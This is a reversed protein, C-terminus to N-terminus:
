RVLKAEGTTWDFRVTKSGAGFTWSAGKDELTVATPPAPKESWSFAVANRWAAGRHRMRITLFASRNYRRDILPLEGTSIDVGEPTLAAVNLRAKEGVAALTNGDREVTQQEPHFRLELDHAETLEIDDIVILVDPKLFLLHRRFRELGAARPYAAAADGVAHDLGDSSSAKLIHPSLRGAHLVRGDFISDGGGLQEGGDIVLTNHQGTYKGMNGDDRILWEGAGHIVFHNQDPHTHHASSACYPMSRIAKHGIYPGCKFFVLSADGSWDSRMSVFDMDTFHRMTPLASPPAPEVSPDYWLLNFLKWSPLQVDAEDLTNALWQAYGNWYE